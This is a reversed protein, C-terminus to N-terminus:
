ETAEKYIRELDPWVRFAWWPARGLIRGDVPRKTHCGRCYHKPLGKADIGQGEADHGLATAKAMLVLFKEIRSRANNTYGIYSHGCELWAFTSEPYGLRNTEDSEIFGVVRRMFRLQEKTLSM